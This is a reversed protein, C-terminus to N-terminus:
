AQFSDTFREVSPLLVTCPSPPLMAYIFLAPFTNKTVTPQKNQKLKKGADHNGSHAMCMTCNLSESHLLFGHRPSLRSRSMKKKKPKSFGSNLIESVFCSHHAPSVGAYRNVFDLCPLHTTFHSLCFQPSHCVLGM